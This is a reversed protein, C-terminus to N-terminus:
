KKYTDLIDKLTKPQGFYFGQMMDVGLSDLVKIQGKTEVGEAIVKCKLLHALQVIINVFKLKEEDTDVNSTFSKDIKVIDVHLKTLYSLSSYGTGFDDLAIKCGLAKIKKINSSAEDMHKIYSSETIEFELNAPPFSAMNIASIIDDILDMDCLHKGSLNVALIYNPNISLLEKAEILAHKLVWIDIDCILGSQEAIGIFKSPLLDGMKSPMRLLVEYGLPANNDLMYQPQYLLYFKDEKLAYKIQKEINYRDVIEKYMEANFFLYRNKGSTKAKYMATDAYSLLKEIDRTDNPFSAIGASTTVYSTLESGTKISNFMEKVVKTAIKKDDTEIVMAFEDGGLRALTCRDFIKIDNWKSAIFKLLEDGAKHGLTDNVAKFNDLDLFVLYFPSDIFLKNEMLKVLGRRNICRTLTDYYAANSLTSENYKARFIYVKLLTTIIINFISYSIGILYLDNHRIIGFVSLVCIETLDALMLINYTLANGLVLICVSAVVSSTVTWKFLDGTLIRYGFLSFDTFNFCYHTLLWFISIYFITIFFASVKRTRSTKAGVLKKLEKNKKFLTIM